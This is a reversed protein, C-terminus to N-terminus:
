RVFEFLVLAVPAAFLLADIRDLIGGHGPLMTGSDKVNAGRKILSEVLDGLQAAINLVVAVVPIKWGHLLGPVYRQLEDASLPTYFTMGGQLHLAHNIGPAFTTLVWCALVSGVVSGVAGEWTKNPSIRPSMKHKGIAKGTYMAVTDGAWVAFFTFIVPYWGLDQLLTLAFMPLGVYLPGISSMAASPFAKSLPEQRMAFAMFFFPSFLYLLTAFMAPVRVALLPTDISDYHTFPFTALISAIFLMVVYFYTLWRIPKVGYAEVLDLYEKLALLAVACVLLTFLWSPAKFVALLVLPILVLATVIRKM